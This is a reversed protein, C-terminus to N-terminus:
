GMGFIYIYMYVLIYIHTYLSYSPYIFLALLMCVCVCMSFIGGLKLVARSNFIYNAVGFFVGWWWMDRAVCVCLVLFHERWIHILSRTAAAHIYMYLIYLSGRVNCYMFTCRNIHARVKSVHKPWGGGGVGSVLGRANCALDNELHMDCNEKWIRQEVVGNSASLEMRADILFVLVLRCKAYVLMMYTYIYSSYIIIIITIYPNSSIFPTCWLHISRWKSRIRPSLSRSFSHYCLFLFNELIVCM